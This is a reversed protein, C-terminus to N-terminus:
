GPWPADSGVYAFGDTVQGLAAPFAAFGLAAVVLAPALLASPTDVGLADLAGVLAAGIALLLLVTVLVAGFAFVSGNMVQGFGSVLLVQGAFAVFGSLAALLIAARDFATAPATARRPRTRPIAQTRAIAGATAAAPRVPGSGQVREVALADADQAGAGLGRAVLLAGVGAASTLAIGCAYTVRVGWWDPGLFAAFATGAAAGLTNVAYLATGRAGLSEVRPAVATVIAPLTAGFCAAAPLTAGLAIAFRLATLAGPVERARDYFAHLPLEGAALLLPVAAAALGAALELGAYARLAGRVAGLPTRDGREDVAGRVRRAVIRPALWAGIAHGALFAVLTASV